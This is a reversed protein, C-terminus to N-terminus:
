RFFKMVSAYLISAAAAFFFLYTAVLGGGILKSLSPSVGFREYFPGTEAPSVMYSIFFIVLVLGIGLLAGKAAKLNGFTQILPFALSAVIALLLLIYTVFFGINIFTSEM